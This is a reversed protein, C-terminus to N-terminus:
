RKTTINYEKMYKALIPAYEECKKKIERVVDDSLDTTICFKELMEPV